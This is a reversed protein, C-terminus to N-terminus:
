STLKKDSASPKPAQTEKKAPKEPKAPAPTKELFVKELEKLASELFLVKEYTLLDKINLYNVLLTKTQPLNRASQEILLDKKPLVILVKREIPLKKIM